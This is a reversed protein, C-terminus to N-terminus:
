RIVSVVVLVPFVLAGALTGYIAILRPHRRAYLYRARWLLARRDAPPLKELLSRLENV